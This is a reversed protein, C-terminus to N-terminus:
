GVPRRIGIAAPFSSAMTPSSTGEEGLLQALQAQVIEAISMSAEKSSGYPNYHIVIVLALGFPNIQGPRKVFVTPTVENM